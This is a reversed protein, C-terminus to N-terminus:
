CAVWPVIQAELSGSAACLSEIADLFLTVNWSKSVSPSSIMLPNPAQPQTTQPLRRPTGLPGGLLAGVPVRLVSAGIRSIREAAVARPRRQLFIRARRLSCLLTGGHHYDRSRYVRQVFFLTSIANTPKMAPSLISASEASLPAARQVRDECSDPRRRATVKGAGLAHVRVRM